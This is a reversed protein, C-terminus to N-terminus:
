STEKALFFRHGAFLLFPIADDSTSCGPSPTGSSGSARSGFVEYVVTMPKQDHWFIYHRGWFPGDCGFIRALEENDGMYVRRVERYLEVNGQRLNSWMPSSGDVMYKRFNDESWWSAAYVM